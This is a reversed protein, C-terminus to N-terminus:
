AGQPRMWLIGGHWTLERGTPYTAELEVRWDGTAADDIWTTLDVSALRDDVDIISAPRTVTVGTLDHTLHAEIITIGALDTTGNLRATMTDKKDGVTRTWLNTM